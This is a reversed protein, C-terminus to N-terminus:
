PRGLKNSAVVLVCLALLVPVWILWGGKVLLTCLVATILAGGVLMPLPSSRRSM